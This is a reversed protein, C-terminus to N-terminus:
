RRLRRVDVQDRARAPKSAFFNTIGSYWPQQNEARGVAQKIASVMKTDRVKARANIGLRYIPRDLLLQPIPIQSRFSPKAPLPIATSTAPSPLALQSSSVPARFSTGGGYSPQTKRFARKVFSRVSRKIYSPIPPQSQVRANYLPAVRRSKRSRAIGTARRKISRSRYTKMIFFHDLGWFVIIKPPDRSLAKLKNDM